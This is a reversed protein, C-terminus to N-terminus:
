RLNTKELRNVVGVAKMFAATPNKYWWPFTKATEIIEGMKEPSYLKAFRMVMQTGRKEQIQMKECTALAVSVFPQMMKAMFFGENSTPHKGPRDGSGVDFFPNIISKTLM